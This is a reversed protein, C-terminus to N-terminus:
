AGSGNGAASRFIDVPSSFSAAVTKSGPVGLLALDSLGVTCMVDVNVTSGPQLGATTTVTVALTQCTIGAEALSAAAIMRADNNASTVTRALSAARAAQHAVDNLRLTCGALRGCFVIFLLMVALVPTLLVIEVTASGRDDARLIHWWRRAEDSPGTHIKM